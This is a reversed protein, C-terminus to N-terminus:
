LIGQIGNVLNLMVPELRTLVMGKSVVRTGHEKMVIVMLLVICVLGMFRTELTSEQMSIEMESITLDLVMNSVLDQNVLMPAVMLVLSFVLAMAKVMLGSALTAIVLTSDTFETVMDLVKGISAKTDVGELGARSGMVMTGGM